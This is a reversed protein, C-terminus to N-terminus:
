AFKLWSALLVPSPSHVKPRLGRVQCPVVRLLERRCTFRGLYEQCAARSTFVHFGSLYTTKSTGDKVPREVAKLWQGAPMKRSGDLGHFLTRIQGEVVEVIKWAATADM